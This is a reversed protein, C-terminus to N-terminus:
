DRGPETNYFIPGSNNPARRVAIWKGNFSMSQRQRNGM